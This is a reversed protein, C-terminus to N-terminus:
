PDPSKNIGAGLGEFFGRPGYISQYSVRPLEVYIYIYSGM